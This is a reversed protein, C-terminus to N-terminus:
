SPVAQDPTGLHAELMSRILSAAHTADEAQQTFRAASLSSGRERARNELNRALAAKEELGRLAMWLAGDLQESQEGLLSEASWAHGVRCRYRVLPGDHIEWLVGACDPCSFGSPQGPRDSQNMADDDMLAMDAEIALLPSVPRGVEVVEEKCLRVLLQAMEAIPAVYDVKVHELASSPMGPYLADAPDQVVTVGGQAAIASLGATGDDLVGSLVVGIVRPGVARAASRFLVDVAPRLGNERPGRTLVIEDGAVVLHHDPAAVWVVSETLSQRHGPHRAPLPGSRALIAPLVSGGYSPVHLVVLVAAPLDVPLGSVLTRLAEVGGASAGVVIVNRRMLRMWGALARDGVGELM